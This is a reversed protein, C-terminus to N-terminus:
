WVSHFFFGQQLGLQCAIPLVWLYAWHYPVHWPKRTSMLSNSDPLSLVRFLPWVMSGDGKPFQCPKFRLARSIVSGEYTLYGSLRKEQSIQLHTPVQNNILFVM